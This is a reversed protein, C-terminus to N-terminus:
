ITPALILDAQFQRFIAQLEALKEPFREKLQNLKEFASEYENKLMDSLSRTKQYEEIISNIKREWAKGYEAGLRCLNKRTQLYDRRLGALGTEIAKMYEDKLTVWNKVLAAEYEHKLSNFLAPVTVIENIRHANAGCFAFGQDLLGQRANDLAASICYDAHQIDCQELCRWACRKVNRIGAAANDLFHNRIARGPLGVPSKIIVIDEANCAVYAEKFRIDADCEETAVFRTAMQVGQAGLHLFRLIDEGSYIGGAAIVPIKRDFKKEFQELAAVVQPVLVELAQDADQLKEAKFGLHGGALPGEVVVADPIDHYNKEWYKYILEAARASSVIPVVLVNAARIKAVPIDKIPLGAGMFLADVKEEISVDLLQQFDKAAVMINIGILGSSKSRARRIESRLARINAAQGDTYYDPEIMGIGNAAIVGMGGEAAVASALNSLSIGVGMGGQVIPLALSRKGINMKPM